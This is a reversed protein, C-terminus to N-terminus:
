SWPDLANSGLRIFDVAQIPIPDNSTAKAEVAIWVNTYTTSNDSAGMPVWTAGDFSYFGYYITGSRAIRLYITQGVVAAFAGTATSGNIAGDYYLLSGGGTNVDIFLGQYTGADYDTDNDNLWMGVWFENNTWSSGDLALAPALALIISSGDPVTYDQRLSVTQGATQGAQLLIFGDRTALDYKAVNALELISVTGSAGAVVTWQADLTGGEFEDDPPDDPTTKSALHNGQGHVTASGGAASGATALSLTGDANHTLDGNTVRLVKPQRVAPSGDEEEIRMAHKRAAMEGEQFAIRRFQELQEPDTILTM